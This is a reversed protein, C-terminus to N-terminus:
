QSAQQGGDLLGRDRYAKRNAQFQTLAGRGKIMSVFKEQESQGTEDPEDSLRNYIFVRPDFHGMDFGNSGDSMKKAYLWTHFQFHQGPHDALWEGWAQPLAAQADLGGQMYHIIGSRGLRSLELNPMATRANGLFDNTPHGGGIGGFGTTAMQAQAQAAFKAFKETSALDERSLTGHLGLREMVQSLVEEPIATKSTAATKSLEDLSALIARNNAIPLGQSFLAQGEGASKEYAAPTGVAQGTQVGPFAANGVGRSALAVASSPIQTPPAGPTTTFTTMPEQGTPGVQMQKYLALNRKVAEPDMGLFKTAVMAPDVGLAAIAPSIGAFAKPIKNPPLDLLPTIIKVIADTTQQQSALQAQKLQEIGTLQSSHVFGGTPNQLLSRRAASYDPTPGLPGEPQPVNTLAQTENQQSQYEKMRTILAMLDLPSMQGQQKGVNAYISTDPQLNPM